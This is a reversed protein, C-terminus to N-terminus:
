FPVKFNILERLKDKGNNLVYTDPDMGGPLRINKVNLGFQQLSLLEGAADRGANDGDLLLIINKCFRFLLCLNQVKVSTGGLAVVNTIGEQFLYMMDFLGEVIICTDEKKIYPYSYNLGFLYNGELFSKSWFVKPFGRVIFGLEENYLSYYPILITNNYLGVVLKVEDIVQFPLNYSYIQNNEVYGLGFQNLTKTSLQKSVLYEYPTM